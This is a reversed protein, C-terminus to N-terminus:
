IGARHTRVGGETVPESPEQCQKVRLLLVNQEAKHGM